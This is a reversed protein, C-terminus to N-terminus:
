CLHPKESMDHNPQDCSHGTKLNAIFLLSTVFLEKKRKKVTIKCMNAAMIDVM